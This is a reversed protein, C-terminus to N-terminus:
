EDYLGMEQNWRTQEALWEGTRDFSEKYELLHERDILRQKGDQRYKLVDINLLCDVSDESMDLLVATQAVTLESSSVPFLDIDQGGTALFSHPLTATISM